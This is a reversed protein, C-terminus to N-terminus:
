ADDRIEPLVVGTSDPDGTNRIPLSGEAVEFLGPLEVPGFIAHLRAADVADILVVLTAEPKDSQGLRCAGDATLPRYNCGVVLTAKVYKRHLVSETGLAHVAERLRRVTSDPKRTFKTDAPIVAGPPIPSCLLSQSSVVDKDRCRRRVAGNKKGIPVV